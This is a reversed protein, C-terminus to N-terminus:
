EGHSGVENLIYIIEEAMKLNIKEIAYGTHVTVWDGVAVEEDLLMTSIERKVGNMDATANERDKVEIIKMPVGLCM